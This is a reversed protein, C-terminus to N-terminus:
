EVPEQCLSSATLERGKQLSWAPKWSHGPSAGVQGSAVVSRWFGEGLDFWCGNGQRSMRTPCGPGPRIRNTETRQHRARPFRSPLEKGLDPGRYSGTGTSQLCSKLGRPKIKVSTHTSGDATLSASTRWINFMTSHNRNQNVTTPPAVAM